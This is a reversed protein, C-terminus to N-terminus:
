QVRRIRVMRDKEGIRMRYDGMLGRSIVADFESNKPYNYHGAEIQRWVQGNTMHFFLIRNRGRKVESVTVNLVDDRKEEVEKATTIYKRGFEDAAASAETANPMDTTSAAQSDGPVIGPPETSSGVQETIAPTEAVAETAENMSTAAASPAATVSPATAADDAEVNAEVRIDAIEENEAAVHTSSAIIAEFCSLKAADSEIKACLELASVDVSQANLPTSFFLAAACIASFFLPARPGEIRSVLLM